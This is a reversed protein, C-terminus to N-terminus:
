YCSWIKWDKFKRLKGDEGYVGMYDYTEYGFYKLLFIGIFIGPINCIMVDVFVSDWWCEKFAFYINKFSLEV